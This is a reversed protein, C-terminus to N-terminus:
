NNHSLKNKLKNKSKLDVVIVTRDSDSTKPPYRKGKGLKARKGRRENKRYEHNQKEKGHKTYYSSKNGYLKKRRKVKVKRKRKPKSLEILRQTAIAHLAGHSVYGIPKSPQQYPMRPKSLEIIRPSAKPIHVTTSRTQLTKADPLRARPQALQNTRESIEYLLASIKVHSSELFVDKQYKTIKLDTTKPMMNLPRWQSLHFVTIPEFSNRYCNVIRGIKLIWYITHGTFFSEYKMFYAEMKEYKKSM